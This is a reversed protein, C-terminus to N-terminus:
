PLEGQDTPLYAGTRCPGALHLHQHQGAYRRTERDASVRSGPPTAIGEVEITAHHIRPLLAKVGAALQENIIETCELTARAM